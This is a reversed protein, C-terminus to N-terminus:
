DMGLWPIFRYREHVPKVCNLQDNIFNDINKEHVKNIDNSFEHSKRSLEDTTIHRKDFVHRVNFNFLCIWALWYIMLIESLDAASRNLQAILINVDIEIIFWVEYLWFRVKKLAKLLERYERKTIDYKLESM